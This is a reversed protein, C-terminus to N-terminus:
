IVVILLLNLKMSAYFYAYRQIDLIIGGCELVFFRRRFESSPKKSCNGM